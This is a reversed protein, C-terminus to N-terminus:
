MPIGYGMIYMSNVEYIRRRCEDNISNGEITHITGKEVKEVIGVHDSIGDGNWDFFIIYSPSPTIGKKDWRKNAKFWKIGEDCNAFKPVIEKDILGAENAVWSVFCACWEVRYQYGYWEWYKKGGVNGVQAQAIMVMNGNGLHYYRLVHPVYEPDGYGKVGLERIKEDSFVKANARTYGNFNTLAWEIYGNGYNYGQLALSIGKIDAADKVKAKKLCDALYHVGVDISYEPDQIGNPKKPYKKNYECESSQMPDTGKGGSEQMMVAYILNKYESIDYKKAYKEVEDSYEYVEPTINETASAETSDGALVAFIGIFLVFVVLVILAGGAIIVTHVNTTVKTAVNGISKVIRNIISTGKKVTHNAQTQMQKQTKHMHSVKMHTQYSQNTKMKKESAKRSLGLKAKIGSLKDSSKRIRSYRQTRKDKTKISQRIEENKKNIRHKEKKSIVLRKARHKTERAAKKEFGTVNEIAQQSASRPNDSDVVEDTHKKTSISAEKISHTMAGKKDLIKVCKDVKREKIDKM